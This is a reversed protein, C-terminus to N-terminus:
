CMAAFFNVVDAVSTAAIAAFGAKNLKEIRYKQLDNPKKGPQKVEVFVTRGNKLAMLDPIGNCSTQILKIVIWGNTELYKKIQTQIISERM